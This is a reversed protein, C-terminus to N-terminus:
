AQRAYLGGCLDAAKRCGRAAWAAALIQKLNALAQRAQAGVDGSGVLKCDKDWAVQGSVHLSCASRQEVAQSFGFRATLYVSPPNIVNRKM